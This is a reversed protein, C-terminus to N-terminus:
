EAAIRRTESTALPFVKAPNLLWKPDFVDKVAMQAEMDEPTFQNVMLDRKEIGVGHEGTLCGGVEVCLNLIDAGFAECKELDGPKNANFLILPHMNGDGAHFVNGVGLGYEASMEGIRRLVYPLQNVPITGDLCMYDNIQGMAGFASKRGLWIRASEDASTSERLEVPNHSRAIALIKDLQETIEADSGEVEVILLAECDPYGAGAFAETARICPRDMFEIAVPLVGAKMIDSVCEGAVENSDFGMLVPRAGEPKRLIRLTAETVVGLQGESGCIVGLLDLGGADLHAGGIEVVTGDMQVMTVGLLNNTTVGYKLCHAGGSNMAINGSIACALQSSPDPAYFFDEEEVAGSVSLNTRGTQVRIFRNDYDTELVENMRAVGLIVSDATPLSGGALSTGAGRPVVPVGMDHCIKLVAAVEETNRPLVAALPPCRYATLADCEYARTEAEEHIVADLPLVGQLKKVLTPKIALLEPNPKPMEM